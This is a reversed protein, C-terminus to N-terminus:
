GTYRLRFSGSFGAQEHAAASDVNSCWMLYLQGQAVSSPGSATGNWISPLGRLKIFKNILKVTNQGALQNWSTNPGYNDVPDIHFVKDWLVKFRYRNNLNMMCNLKHFATTDVVETCGASLNTGNPYKDYVLMVRFAVTPWSTNTAAIRNNYVLMRLMLSQLRCKAGDRQDIADGAAMTVIPTYEWVDMFPITVDGSNFTGYNINSTWAKYEVDKRGRNYRASYGTPAWMATRARKRPPGKRYKGGFAKTYSRKPM